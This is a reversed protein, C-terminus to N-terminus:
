AHKLQGGLELALRSQRCFMRLHGDVVDITEEDWSRPRGRTEVCLEAHDLVVGIGNISHL